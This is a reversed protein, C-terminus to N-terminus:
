AHEIAGIRHHVVRIMRVFEVVVAGVFQVQFPIALGLEIM